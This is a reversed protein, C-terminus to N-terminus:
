FGAFDAQVGLVEPEVQDWSMASAEHCAAEYAADGLAQRLLGLNFECGSIDWTLFRFISPSVVTMWRVCRALLAAPPPHGEMVALGLRGLLAPLVAQWRQTEYGEALAVEFHRQAQDLNGRIQECFGLAARGIALQPQVGDELLLSLAEHYTERAQSASVLVHLAQGLATLSTIVYWRRGLQRALYLREQLLPVATADRTETCVGGLGSLTELIGSKDDMEWFIALAQEFLARARDLNGQFWVAYGLAMTSGAVGLLHGIRQCVAMSEEFFAAGQQISGLQMFSGGLNGLALAVGTHDGLQRFIELSEELLPIATKPLGWQWGISGLGYLAYAMELRYGHRRAIQLSKEHLDTAQQRDDQRAALLGALNLAQAVLPSANEPPWHALLRAYWGSAEHWYGRVLWFWGAAVALRLAAEIDDREFEGWELAVRLNDRESELCDLWHRQQARWLEPAAQEAYGTCYALHLHRLRPMEGSSLLKERGYQRITELMRYRTQGGSEEVLLLSKDALHTILDLVQWAEIGEGPTDDSCVTEAADLTCGGVFVSLRRLLLREPESLLDYSWDILAQLTQQRPLAMRSGGTLLRFRDDMRRAIQEVPLTRVRAAALELALPIGDLRMCTKLVAAANEGTLKFSPQAATARQVFLQVAEYTSASDVSPTYHPDLPPLSLSPVYFIVEGPIGLAERSTALIRLRPCAQLLAGALQACAQILHECNDLLILMHRSRVYDALTALPTRGPEEQVGLAKIVAQPVLAPDALPALEVLWVGDPFVDLLVHGMQIALRTKGTGGVGSLTLLRATELLRRAEALEKERGVFSTLQVPLNHVLAELSRLPPFDAPLDPIALQYVEEPHPIGKFRHRGLAILDAGTPLAMAMEECGQSLLIQGGHAASLLRQVRNLAPGFYDGNREEAEGRYLAMRVKLPGTEEWAQGKLARQAAVAAQVAQDPNAFAVCFADGITKFVCGDHTEFTQRLVADHCALARRMAHPYTEWLATSGEIDTFLFTLSPM